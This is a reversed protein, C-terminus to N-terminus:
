FLTMDSLLKAFVVMQQAKRTDLFALKRNEKEKRNLERAWYTRGVEDRFLVNV